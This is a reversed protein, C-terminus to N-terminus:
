RGLRRFHEDIRREYDETVPLSAVIRSGKGPMSDLSLRGGLLEVREAIGPLGITSARVIEATDFGLGQDAIQLNLAVDDTWVRVAAEMVGAHRAVNTLAEQVIRYAATELGTSFRGALGSLDFEVRIGTSSTYQRFLCRLAPALGLHDLVAPRLDSALIRVQNLTEDVLARALQLREAEPESSTIPDLAFKLRTLLQGLEDHLDRALRRREREQIELLRRSLRSVLGSQRDQDTSIRELAQEARERAAEAEALRARLEALEAHTRDSEPHSDTL